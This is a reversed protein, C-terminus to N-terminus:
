SSAARPCTGGTSRSAAPCASPSRAPGRPRRGPQRRRPRAALVLLLGRRARAGRGGGRGRRRRQQPRHPGPGRVPPDRRGDREYFPAVRHTSCAAAPRPCSPSAGWTSSSPRARSRAASASRTSPRTCPGRWSARCPARRGWGRGSPRSRCPRRPVRDAGRPLPRLAAPRRGAGRPADRRGDADAGARPLRARGAPRALRPRHRARLGVTGEILAERALVEAPAKQFYDLVRERRQDFRFVGHRSGQELSAPKAFGFVASREEPVSTPDFDIVADGSSVVIEGRRWPYKFFLGSSCTSSSRPCSPARPSRCRRSSSGRRRTAPSGGARAGRTSSCSASRPSSRGRTAAGRRSCGTRPGVAHQRRHRGPGGAPRPGGRVGARAPLAGARPPARPARPLGRGAAGLLGHDPGHRLPADPTGPPSAPRRREALSPPPRRGPEPDLPVHALPGGPALGEVGLRDGGHPPRPLQAGARGGARGRPAPPDEQGRDRRRPARAPRGLRVRPPRHQRRERPRVEDPHRHRGGHRGRLHLRADRHRRGLDRDHRRGADGRDQPVDRRPGEGARGAM